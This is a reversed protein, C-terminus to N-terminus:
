MNKGWLSICLADEVSVFFVPPPWSQWILGVLRKLWKMDQYRNCDLDFVNWHWVYIVSIRQSRDAHNTGTPGPMRKDILKMLVSWNRGSFLKNTSIDRRSVLLCQVWNNVICMVLVIVGDTYTIGETVALLSSKTFAKQCVSDEKMHKYKYTHICIRIWIYTQTLLLFNNNGYIRYKWLAVRTVHTCRDPISIPIGDVRWGFTFLCVFDVHYINRM